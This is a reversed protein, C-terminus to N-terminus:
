TAKRARHVWGSEKLGSSAITMGDNAAMTENLQGALREAAEETPIGWGALQVRCTEAHERVVEYVQEHCTALNFDIAHAVNPDHPTIMMDRTTARKRGPATNAKWSIVGNDTPRKRRPAPTSM